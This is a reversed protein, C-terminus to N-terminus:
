LRRSLTNALLHTSYYAPTVLLTTKLSTKFIRPHSLVQEGEDIRRFAAYPEFTPQECLLQRVTEIQQEQEAFVSLFEALKLKTEYSLM